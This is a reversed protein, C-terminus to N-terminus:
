TRFRAIAPQLFMVLVLIHQFRARLTKARACDELELFDLAPVM